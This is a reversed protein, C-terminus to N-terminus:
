VGLAAAGSRDLLALLPEVLAPPAAMVSGPRPIGGDLSLVTAGAEAAIVAGAALDWASLGAEFYLDVRGRAVACLDVAAAGVRRIDRVEPLIEVLTRAQARRRDPAYGFGTAALAQSLDSCDSVRIPVDNCFAGGGKVATYLDGHAPDAVVGVAPVGDLEAGISVGWGPHAYVYNTTGDVPDIIWRVGTSGARDSGEEALIGDDPRRDLITGVILTEAARDMETVLDTSTSKRDVTRPGSLADLLLDAAQRAADIAVAQLRGLLQAEPETM